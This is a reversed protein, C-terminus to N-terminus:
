MSLDGDFSSFGALTFLPYFPKTRIQNCWNWASTLRGDICSGADDMNDGGSGDFGHRFFDRLVTKQAADVGGFTDKVYAAVAPPLEGDLYEIVRLIPVIIRSIGAYKDIFHFANPVQNDGLHIRESGVWAGLERKTDGLLAQLKAYLQPAPQVRQLGQGTNRLEYPVDANLLDAEATMWLEYMRHAINKWLTLSQLVFTFQKEHEHTLRSGDEAERIALSDATSKPATPKFYKQLLAILSRTSEVNADSFDNLDNLSRVLLEVDDPKAKGGSKLAWEKCFVSVLRDKYRLATNLDGRDKIKPVPTICVALRRDELMEEIGLEKAAAGVTVIPSVVNFGLAERCMENQAADQALYLFKVYDTRLHDPNMIKFRRAVQVAECVQKERSAFNGELICKAGDSLDECIALGGLVRIVEKTITMNRRATDRNARETDVKDTYSSTLLVGRILRQLKRQPWLLRVPVSDAIEIPRAKLPYEVPPSGHPDM